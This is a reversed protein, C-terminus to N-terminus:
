SESWREEAHYYTRTAEKSDNFITGLIPVKDSM